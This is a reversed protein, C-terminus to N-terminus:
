NPAITMIRANSGHVTNNTIQYGETGGVDPRSITVGPTTVALAQFNRSTPLSDQLARTLVNQSVVNHVDVLPSTGSVTLTEQLAGIALDANVSATFNSTLEIGDRKV